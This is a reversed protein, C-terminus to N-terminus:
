LAGKIQGLISTTKEGEKDGAEGAKKKGANETAGTKDAQAQRARPPVSVVELATLFLEQLNFTIQLVNETASDTIAGLTKILMNRYTRKGTVVKMPIRDSQLKRLSDYVEVLKSPEDNYMCRVTLQAAKMYAHDTINAGQQVPHSTIELEDNAVEEITVTAKFPGIVREPLFTALETEFLRNM